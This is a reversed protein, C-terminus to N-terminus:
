QSKYQIFGRWKLSDKVIALAPKLQACKKRFNIFKLGAYPIVNDAISCCHKINIHFICAKM